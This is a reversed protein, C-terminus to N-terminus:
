VVYLHLNNRQVKSFVTCMSVFQKLQFNYMKVTCRYMKQLQYWKHTHHGTENLFTICIEVHAENLSPVKGPCNVLVM